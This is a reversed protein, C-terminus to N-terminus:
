AEEAPGDTSADEEGSSEEGTLAIGEDVMPIGAEELVQESIYIPADFRVAIATADSPRADLMGEEGDHIYRVKTFFTGERLEDIVVDFIEVGFLDAVSKFLDHTMPRPAQIKELELAIAQAEYAGIIIVLVAPHFNM